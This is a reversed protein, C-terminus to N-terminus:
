DGRVERVRREIEDILVSAGSVLRFWERQHPASSRWQHFERHISQEVLRADRRTCAPSCYTLTLQEPNACQLDRFRVSVDNAIGVKYYDWVNIVYVSTTYHPNADSAPIAVDPKGLGGIRICSTCIYIQAPARSLSVVRWRPSGFRKKCLSVVGDITAHFYQMNGTPRHEFWLYTM